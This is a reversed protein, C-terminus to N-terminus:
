VGGRGVRTSAARGRRGEMRRRRRSQTRRATDHSASVASTNMRTLRHRQTRTDTSLKMKAIGRHLFVVDSTSTEAVPPQVDLRFSNRATDTRRGVVSGSAGGSLRMTAEDDNSTCREVAPGLLSNPGTRSETM